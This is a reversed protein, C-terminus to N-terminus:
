TPRPCLAAGDARQAALLTWLYLLACLAGAVPALLRAFNYGVGALVANNADGQRAQPLQSGHPARGEHPRHGVRCAARRRLERAIQKTV